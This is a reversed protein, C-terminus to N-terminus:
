KSLVSVISNDGPLFLCVLVGVSSRWDVSSQRSSLYRADAVASLKHFLCRSDTVIGAAMQRSEKEPLDNLRCFFTAALTLM